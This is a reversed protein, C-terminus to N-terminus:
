QGNGGAPVYLGTQPEYLGNRVSSSPTSVPPAGAAPVGYMGSPSAVPAAPAQTSYLAQTAGTPAPSASQANVQRVNSNHWWSASGAPAAPAQPPLTMTPAGPAPLPGMSAPTQQPPSVSISTPPDPANMPSQMMNPATGMQAAPHQGPLAPAPPANSTPPAFQEHIPPLEQVPVPSVMPAPHPGMDFDVTTPGYNGKGTGNANGCGSGCVGGYSPTELLGYWYLERDSPQDTFMGPGGPPMQADSMAGALVPTVLIVLETETTQYSVRRFAAGIYPLEGLLPTKFTQATDQIETLGGLMFTEGFRMEVSTNVRRTTLGPVTLGGTSVANSFDKQSVEPQLNLRVRGNGLLIPVATLRVGFEKWQITVTGLSQPVLIPFEGGSLLNAPQGNTTVLVPSALIKLLSESALADLFMSFTYNNNVVGGLLSPNAAFNTPNVALAPAAAIPTNLTSLPALAGPLSGLFGFNTSGLFNFGLERLKTRDVELVRVKLEVEQDGGVEMQNIVNPYFEKAIDMIRPIDEPRTVYGRLVVSDRVAIATVADTPFLNKLYAQLHRVDGIVFVEVTFSANKEDVLVLSTVGPTLAHIRIENPHLDVKTVHVVEPDFGYVTSIRNKLDIIKAFKEVLRLDTQPEVIHVLPDNDVPLPASEDQAAASRALGAAALVILLMQFFKPSSQAFMRM